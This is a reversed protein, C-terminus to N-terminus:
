PHRHSKQSDHLGAPKFQVTSHSAGPREAVTDVQALLDPPKGVLRPTLSHVGSTVSGLHPDHVESVRPLTLLKARLADLDVGDPVGKM